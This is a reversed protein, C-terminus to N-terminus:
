CLVGVASIRSDLNNRSVSNIVGPLVSGYISVVLKGPFAESASVFSIFDLKSDDLVVLSSRNGVVDPPVCNFLVSNYGRIVKDSDSLDIQSVLRATNWRITM